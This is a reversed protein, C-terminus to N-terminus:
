SDPTMRSCARRKEEAANWALIQSSTAALRLEAAASQDTVSHGPALPAEIVFPDAAAATRGLVLVTAIILGYSAGILTVVSM